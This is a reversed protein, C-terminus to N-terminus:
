RAGRRVCPSLGGPRQEPWRGQPALTIVTLASVRCADRPAAVLQAGDEPLLREVASAVENIWSLTVDAACRVIAIADAVQEFVRDGDVFADMAPSVDLMAFRGVRGPALLHVVDEFHVCTLGRVVMSGALIDAARSLAGPDAPAELVCAELQRALEHLGEGGAAGAPIIVVCAIDPQAHVLALIRRMEPRAVADSPDFLCIVLDQGAVEEMGVAHAERWALVSGCSWTPEGRPLTVRGVVVGLPLFSEDDLSEDM